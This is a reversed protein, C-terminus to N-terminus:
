IPVILTHASQPPIKIEATGVDKVNLTYTSEYDVFNTIIVVLEENNESSSTSTTTKRIFAVSELSTSIGTKEKPPTPEPTQVMNVGVSGITVYRTFHGYFYYSPQYILSFDGRAEDLPYYPYSTFNARIPADCNGLDNLKEGLHQNSPGGTFDLLMNWDIWGTTYHNMDRLIDTAYKQGYLWVRNGLNEELPRPNTAETALLPYDPYSEHVQKLIDYNLGWNEYWHFAIGDVYKATDPDALITDVMDLMRDDKQDDHIFIKVNPHDNKIQPGLYNKVFDQEHQPEFGCCEYTVAFQKSVHPENQVTIYEINIGHKAYESIYKSFYLAWSKFIQEEQLLGPMFSNMMRMNRKMWAPPSWPSSLFRLTNGADAAVKQARQIMPIIYQLDHEISFSNLEYDNTTNAYNYHSVSFDSSGITLRCLTYQHGNKGFYAQLFEEQKDDPLQMFNYATSDTFAGGFGIIEQKKRSETSTDIDLTFTNNVDEDDTKDKKGIKLKRNNSNSNSTTTTPQLPVPELEILQAKESTEIIRVSTAGDKVSMITSSSKKKLQFIRSVTVSTGLKVDTLTFSNDNDNINITNINDINNTNIYNGNHVEVIEYLDSLKQKNGDDDILMNAPVVVNTNKVITESFTWHRQPGPIDCTKGNYGAANTNIYILTSVDPSTIVNVIAESEANASTTLFGGEVDGQRLDESILKVSKLFNGADDWAQRNDSPSRSDAQFMMLGKNGASLVSALQVIIENSNLPYKAWCDACFAQSYTWTPLPKMNQRTNYLYDYAGQIRQDQAWATIHPACGAIYFDMGQIDTVGSFAGNLRNSHGGDYTAIKRQGSENQIKETLQHRWWVNWSADLSTDSEDGLFAGVISDYVDDPPLRKGDDEYWFSSSPLIYWPNSSTQSEKVANYIEDVSDDGCDDKKMFMTDILLDNTFLEFNDENCSKTPFPNDDGKPWAEIPYKEKIVRGGWGSSVKDNGKDDTTTISATWISTESLKLSSIDTTIVYHNGAPITIKENLNISGGLINISSITIDNNNDYNHLHIIMEKYNNRTTVYTIQLLSESNFEKSNLDENILELDNEDYIKLKNISNLAKDTSVHLTTLISGSNKDYYCRVWNVDKLVPAESDEDYENPDMKIKFSGMDVTLDGKINLDKSVSTIFQLRGGEVPEKAKAFDENYQDKPLYYDKRFNNSISSSKVTNLIYLLICVFLFLM